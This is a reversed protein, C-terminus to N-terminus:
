VALWICCLSTTSCCCCSVHHGPEPWFVSICNSMICHVQIVLRDRSHWRCRRKVKQAQASFPMNKTKVEFHVLEFQLFRRWVARCPNLTVDGWSKWGVQSQLGAYLDWWEWSGLGSYNSVTNLGTYAVYKYGKNTVQFTEVSKINCKTQIISKWITINWLM